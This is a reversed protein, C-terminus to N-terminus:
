DGSSGQPWDPSAALRAVAEADLRRANAADCARQALTVAVRVEIHATAIRSWQLNIARRLEASDGAPLPAHDVKADAYADAALQAESLAVSLYESAEGLAARLARGHLGKEHTERSFKAAARAEECAESAAALRNRVTDAWPTSHPM